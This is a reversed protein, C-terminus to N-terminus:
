MTTKNKTTTTATLCHSYDANNDVGGDFSTMYCSNSLNFLITDVVFGTAVLLVVAGVIASVGCMQCRRRCLRVVIVVVASSDSHHQQKIASNAFFIKKIVLPRFM